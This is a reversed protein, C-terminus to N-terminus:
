FASGTIAGGGGAASTWFAGTRFSAVIGVAESPADALMERLPREDRTMGRVLVRCDPTLM